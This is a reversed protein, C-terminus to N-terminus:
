DCFWAGIAKKTYSFRLAVLPSLALARKYFILAEKKQNATYLTRFVSLCRRARYAKEYKAAWFPLINYSFIYDAVREGSEKAFVANHRLSDKHKYVIAMPISLLECECIALLKAMFPIDESSRLETPYSIKEFVRRHVVKACHSLNLRKSLYASFCKERTKPLDETVSYSKERSSSMSIHDGLFVDVSTKNPLIIRLYELLDPAMEDDADLFFLYEGLSKKAGLNRAVAPGQNKQLFYKIKKPFKRILDDAIQATSDTSGDDIILIQYDDGSQSLVSEIARELTDAYNYAPIVISFLLKNKNVPSM